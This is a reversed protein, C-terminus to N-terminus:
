DLGVDVIEGGRGHLFTGNTNIGTIMGRGGTHRVLFVLDTRLMPEGGFLYFAPLSGVDPRSVAAM